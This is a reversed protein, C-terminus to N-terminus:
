KLHESLGIPLMSGRSLVWDNLDIMGIQLGDNFATSKPEFHALRLYNQAAWPKELAEVFVDHVYTEIDDEAEPGNLHRGAQHAFGYIYGLAFYDNLLLDCLSSHQFDSVLALQYRVAQGIDKAALRVELDRDFERMIAEIMDSGIPNNQPQDTM